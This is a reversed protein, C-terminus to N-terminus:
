QYRPYPSGDKRPHLKSAPKDEISIRPVIVAKDATVVVSGQWEQGSPHWAVIPYTGVPVHAIKFSGDAATVAFFANDLVKVKAAMQPHINCYVNALGPRDFTVSASEGGSYLGLDFKAPTSISFVNHFTPDENPFDVRTGKVVVLLEPDFTKDRQKMTRVPQKEIPGKVKELYVVVGSHDSKATGDKLVVVSGSLEGTAAWVTTPLTM